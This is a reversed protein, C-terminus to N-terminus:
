RCASVQAALCGPPTVTAFGAGAVQSGEQYQIAGADIVDGPLSEGAATEVDQEGTRAAMAPAIVAGAIRNV